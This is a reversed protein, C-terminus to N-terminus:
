FETRGGLEVVQGPPLQYFSTADLANHVMFIFLHKRWSSLGRDRSGLVLAEKGLFYTVLEARFDLNPIQSLAEPVNPSEGFGYRLEIQKIGLGMDVVKARLEPDVQPVEETLVTVVLTSDHLVQNHKLNHLLSVPVGKPNGALYVAMRHIRVPPTASRSLSDVFDPLSLFRSEVVTRLASRGDRWTLMLTGLVVATALVVWGGSFLKTANASFFVGDFLFFPLAVLALVVWKTKWLKRAAVALLTTTLLMTGSVAIGYADALKASAGFGLVLAVTGLFLLGNVLPVYVQGITQSSTHRISLRPLFGLQVSQRALSFAGTIVAQSAIVTAATSLLVLPTLFWTPSLQFFLNDTKSPDLLIFAGQGLYNLVLAPFVLAYWGRRIPRKGFHGLDAYLAETGTVALFIYGLLAFALLPNYAIFGLACGPNLAWLIEPKHLIATFGLIALVLFWLVIIPGFYMAVRSTGKSQFAFLGVLVGVSLPVVWPQFVPSVLNLGELASLVSVAPTLVGDSYLLAAGVIGAVAVLSAVKGSKNALRSSVLSVLALIGGEGRNDARLVLALYKVCVVLILTWILLSVVGTVPEQGLAVGRGPALCERLAYIPSTGIDGFVVGIAGVTLVLPRQPAASSKMWVAEGLGHLFVTFDVAPRLVGM